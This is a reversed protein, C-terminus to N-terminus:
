DSKPGGTFRMSYRGEHYEIRCRKGYIRAIEEGGMVAEREGQARATGGALVLVRQYGPIIEEVHHTVCVVTLDQWRTFLYGLSHLFDERAVPDLGQCPEDLLLLQPHAALARAILVRQREGTSLTHFRREALAGAGIEQLARAAREAEAATIQDYFAITGEGGSLVVETATMFGPFDAALDGYVWGVHRRLLRLDTHGYEGGLVSVAGHSPYGFGSLVRLLSTKGSGNLGLIVWKEGRAVHWSIGSLIRTGNIELSMGELRIASGDAAPVGAV